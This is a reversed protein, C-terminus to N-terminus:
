KTLKISNLARSISGAWYNRLGFGGAKGSITGHTLIDRSEIDFFVLEFVGKKAYKSLEQALLVVGVGSKNPLDLKDIAAKVDEETFPTTSTDGVFMKERDMEKNLVEVATIDINVIKIKTKKSIPKVYKSPESLFLGNIKGFADIFSYGDEDAGLISVNSFDVGFLTLQEVNELAAKSQGYCMTGVALFVLLIVKKM